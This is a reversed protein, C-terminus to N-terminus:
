RTFTVIEDVAKIYGGAERFSQSIKKANEKYISHQLVENVAHKLDEALLQQINLMFGAGYLSESTSNMGCHSIFVDAQRLIDLQPLYNGVIFNDPIDGLQEVTLQKGISLKRM